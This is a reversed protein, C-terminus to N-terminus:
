LGASVTMLREEHWLWGGSFWACLRVRVCVCVCLSLSLSPEIIGAAVLLRLVDDAGTKGVGLAAAARHLPTQAAPIKLGACVKSGENVTVGGFQLLAQVAAKAGDGAAVHLLQVHAVSRTM